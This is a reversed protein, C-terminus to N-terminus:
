RPRSVLADRLDAAMAPGYIRGYYPLLFKDVASANIFLADANPAVRYSRTGGSAEITLTMGTIRGLRNPDVCMRPLRAVSGPTHVCPGDGPPPDIEFGYPIPGRRPRDVAVLTDVTTRFPGLPSCTAGKVPVARAIAAASDRSEAVGLVGVSDADCAAVWVQRGTRHGDVAEAVARATVASIAVPGEQQAPAPVAGASPSNGCAWLVALTSCGLAITGARRARRGPADPSTTPIAM